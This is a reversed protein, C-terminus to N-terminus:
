ANEGVDRQRQTRHWSKLNERFHERNRDRWRLNAVETSTIGLRRAVEGSPLHNLARIQDAKTM